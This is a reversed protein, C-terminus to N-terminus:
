RVGADATASLSRGAAREPEKRRIAIAARLDGLLVKVSSAQDLNRWQHLLQEAVSEPLALAVNEVFKEGLTEESLPNGPAGLMEPRGVARSITSGDHLTLVVRNVESGHAFAPEWRSMLHLRVKEMAELAAPDKVADDTFDAIKVSQKRLATGVVYPLSFKGQIGTEPRLFRTPPSTHSVDHIDVRAVDGYGLGGERLAALVGDVASHNSGCCPYKKITLSSAAKFPVGLVGGINSLDYTGLGLFAEFFGRRAELIDDAGTFGRRALLTSRVASEAVAGAHLPKSMTGFNAILGGAQSAAISLAMTVEDPNLGLARGCAATAAITGFVGTSHFGRDAQDYRCSRRLSAGVDFGICYADILDKGSVDGDLEAVALLSSLLAGSPHGYGGMDDYDLAHSFVGNAFAALPAPLLAASSLLTAESRGGREEVEATIIQGIPEAAGAVIVGLTDLCSRVAANRDAAPISAGPCSHVFDAIARTAGRAKPSAPDSSSAPHTTSADSTLRTSM